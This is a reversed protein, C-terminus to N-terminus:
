RGWHREGSAAAELGLVRLKLEKDKRDTRKQHIPACLSPKRRIRKNRRTRGKDLLADCIGPADELRHRFRGPTRGNDLAESASGRAALSM